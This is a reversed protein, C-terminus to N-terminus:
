SLGVADGARVRLVVLAAKPVTARFVVVVFVTVRVEEPVAASATLLTAIVPAPNASEPMVAGSVNFGPWVAVRVRLKSGAAAPAALPDIAMVLLAAAAVIARLPVPCAAAGVRLPSEQLLVDSDPAPESTHVTLRLPAAVAAVGTVRALLLLESVTGADRVMAEPADLVLRVAEATATVEAWVAVRVAVDPPIEFDRERVRFAVVGVRVMLAALTAKPSTSRFVGAVWDTLMVDLPVAGTVKVAAVRDPVPKPADPTENGTVSFGPCVEVRL